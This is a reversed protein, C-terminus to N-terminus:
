LNLQNQMCAAQFGLPLNGNHLLMYINIVTMQAFDEVQNTLAYDDPACSDQLTANEWGVSNSHPTNPIAYDFTHAAEHIWTDMQCDGFFHIDGNTLNTYAQTEGGLVMVTGLFRRLGVPVRGLRDVVTDMTMNADACRCVSFTNGCDEYTVATATMGATCENGPGEYAACANPLALAVSTSSAPSLADELDFSDFNHEQAHLSLKPFSVESFVHLNPLQFNATAPTLLAFFVFCLLGFFSATSLM